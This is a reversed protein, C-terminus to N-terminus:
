YDYTRDEIRAWHGENWRDTYAADWGAAWDKAEQSDRPYPCADDAPWRCDNEGIDATAIEVQALHEAYGEHWAPTKNTKRAM